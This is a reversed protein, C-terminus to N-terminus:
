LAEINSLHFTKVLFIISLGESHCSYHKRNVALWLLIHNLLHEDYYCCEWNGGFCYRLSGFSLARSKYLNM